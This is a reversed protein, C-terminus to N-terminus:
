GASFDVTKFSLFLISYLMAKLDSRCKYFDLRSVILHVVNKDTDFVKKLVEVLFGNVLVVSAIVSLILIYLFELVSIQGGCALVIFFLGVIGCNVSLYYIGHGLLCDFNTEINKFTITDQLEETDLLQNKLNHNATNSVLADLREELINAHNSQNKLNPNTPNSALADLREEPTKCRCAKLTTTEEGDPLLNQSIPTALKVILSIDLEDSEKELKKDKYKNLSSTSSMIKKRSLQDKDSIYTFIAESCELFIAREEKTFCTKEHKHVIANRTDVIRKFIQHKILQPLDSNKLLTGLPLNDDFGQIVFHKKLLSELNKSVSIALEVDNGIKEFNPLGEPAMRDTFSTPDPPFPKWM